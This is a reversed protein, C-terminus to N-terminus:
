HALLAVQYLIPVLAAGGLAVGMYKRASILTSQVQKAMAFEKEMFAPKGSLPLRVQLIWRSFGSSWGPNGILLDM